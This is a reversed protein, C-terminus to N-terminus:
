SAVAFLTKLYAGEKFVIPHDLAHFTRELERLPRGESLAVQHILEFFTDSSVHSSCSSMVLIGHRRLVSLGLRVLRRYGALANEVEERRKAFSPPDIIVLAFQRRGGRLTALIEFADGIITKHPSGAVSALHYNRAFNRGAAALAEQSADVSVTQLARGRAAYLSFAGSYAFVDLVSRGSALKGVRHRNDRQDLFFGTKQGRVVEAEFVLGNELFYVPEDPMSGTLAMGDGLGHLSPEQRAVNRSLRLVMNDPAIIDQLASTVSRLHPTWATTYLKLVLTREYRDAVLGPLGDNEGHILRYGTTQSKELPVRIRAADL